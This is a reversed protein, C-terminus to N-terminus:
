FNLFMFLTKASHSFDSQLLLLASREEPEIIGTVARFLCSRADSLTNFISYLKDFDM